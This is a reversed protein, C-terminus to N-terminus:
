GIRLRSVKLGRVLWDFAVRSCFVSTFLSSVIGIILTRGFGQIEPSGYQLLVVGAIATTLQGDFIAWFARRYGTDVVARPSKGIRLEERMRENILVNADVAMGVTLAIGALGPLTLDNNFFAMIAFLFLINLLVMFDAILGGVSYYVAMFLLVVVIGGVAGQMGSVVSERGLTPGILQENQAVIPAPLAGARLVIVLDNAENLLTNYDRFGGLTIQGNAGIRGQITPASQVENDLVIAMQKQLNAGTMAQMRRAGETNMSFTVLPQGSQPDTGVRADDLHEGGVPDSGNPPTEYLVYTQWADPEAQAEGPAPEDVDARGIAFVRGAPVRGSDNVAAVYSGLRTHATCQGNPADPREVDAPCAGPGEAFLGAGRRTIGEPVDQLTMAFTSASDVIQFELQATQGIIERIRDFEQESAGPVEVSIDIDQARVNAEQIGMEGIRNKITEQAQEVALRRLEEISEETLALSISTDGRDVEILDGFSRVLDRDVLELDDANEFTLVILRPDASSMQPTVRAAIREIQETDPPEDEEVLDMKEGLRRILQQAVANRRDEIATEMDVTYMMRLGGQIDLGPTIRRDVNELIFDPIYFWGPVRLLQDRHLQPDEGLENLTRMREVPVGHQAAIEELTQGERVRHKGETLYYFTPWLVVCAGVVCLLVFGLRIYWTREM